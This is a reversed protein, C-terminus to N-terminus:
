VKKGKNIKYLIEKAWTWIYSDFSKYNIYEKTPKGENFKKIFCDVISCYEKYSMEHMEDIKLVRGAFGTAKNILWLMQKVYKDYIAFKDKEYRSCYKSAFSICEKTDYRTSKVNKIKDILKIEGSKLLKDFDGISIINKVMDDLGEKLNTSYFSDLVRVKIFVYGEDTNSKYNNFLEDLFDEQLPYNKMFDMSQWLSCKEEKFDFTFIRNKVKFIYKKYANKETIDNVSKDM